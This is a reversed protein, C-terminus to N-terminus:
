SVVNTLKIGFNSSSMKSVVRSVYVVCICIRIEIKNTTKHGKQTMELNAGRIRTKM